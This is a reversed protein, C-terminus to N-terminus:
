NISLREYIKSIVPLISVPHYNSKDTKCGKKFVPSIDASKLKCPFHGFAIGNNFNNLLLCSFIDKNHQLVKIPVTNKPISKCANLTKIENYIADFTTFDNQSFFDRIKLINTHSQYIKVAKFVPDKIDDADKVFEANIKVDLAKVANSFDNFHTALLNDDSIINSDDIM